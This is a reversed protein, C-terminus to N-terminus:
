GYTKDRTGPGQDLMFESKEGRWKRLSYITQGLEDMEKEEKHLLELAVKKKWLGKHKEMMRLQKIAEFYEKRAKLMNEKCAEMAGKQKEIEEEKAMKDEKLKRLFNVHFCGEHIRGGAQMKQDMKRRSEKTKQVIKAKEEELKKLKEKAEQLEKLRKALYLEAKKKEQQRVRLLAQLRYKPAM